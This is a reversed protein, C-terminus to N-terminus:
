SPRGAAAFVAFSLIFGAVGIAVGYPCQRSNALEGLRRFLALNLLRPGLLPGFKDMAMIGVALAAGFLAMLVVFPAVHDPGMWLAIASMLKVDGGGM